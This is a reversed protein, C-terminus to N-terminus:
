LNEPLDFFTDEEKGEIELQKIKQQLASQSQPKRSFVIPKEIPIEKEKKPVLVVGKPMEKQWIYRHVEFLGRIKFIIINGVSEGKIKGFSMFAGGGILIIGALITIATNKVIAKVIFTIIVSSLLIVFQSIDLPGLIKAKESIYLPTNYVAM